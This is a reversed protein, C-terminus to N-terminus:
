NALLMYGGSGAIAVGALRLAHRSMGTKSIVGAFVGVAHLVATAALMGSVYALPSATALMEVGHAAGHFLAFSMVLSVGAIAPLRIVFAIMIGLLLVSVAIGSEIVPMGTSGIFAFAAIAMAAMYAGPMQWRARGGAIGAWAGVALIALLHDLGMFPHAFGALLGGHIHGTHANAIPAVLALSLLGIYKIFKMKM